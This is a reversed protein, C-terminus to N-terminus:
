PLCELFRQVDGRSSPRRAGSVPVRGVHQRPQFNQGRVLEHRGELVGSTAPLHHRGLRIGSKKQNEHPNSHNLM